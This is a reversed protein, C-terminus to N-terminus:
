HHHHKQEFRIGGLVNHSLSLLPELAPANAFPHDIYDWLSIGECKYLACFRVTDALM